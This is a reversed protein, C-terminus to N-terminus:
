NGDDDFTPTSATGSVSVSLPCRQEGRLLLFSSGLLLLLTERRKTLVGAAPRAYNRTM